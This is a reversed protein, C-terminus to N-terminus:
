TPEETCTVTLNWKIAWRWMDKGRGNTMSDWAKHKYNLDEVMITRHGEEGKIRELTNELMGGSTQLSVYVGEVRKNSNIKVVVSKILGKGGEGEVEWRGASVMEAGPRMIVSVGARTNRGTKAQPLVHEVKAGPWISQIPHRIDSRTKNLVVQDTRMKDIAKRLEKAHTGMGNINWAILKIIM